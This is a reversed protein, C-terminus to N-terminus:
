PRGPWDVFISSLASIRSVANVLGIKGGARVLGALSNSNGSDPTTSENNCHSTIRRERSQVIQSSVKEM